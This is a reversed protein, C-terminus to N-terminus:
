EGGSRSRGSPRKRDESLRSGASTLVTGSVFMMLILVLGPLSVIRDLLMGGGPLSYIVVGIVQDGTVPNVDQAENADGKTTLQRKERDIETVRHTVVVDSHYKSRYSIIDGTEIESFAVPKVLVISGTPITPEMSGTIVTFEQMGLLRPVILLLSAALPILILIFGLLSM